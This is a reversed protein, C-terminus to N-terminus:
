RLFLIGLIVGALVVTWPPMKWIALMAFLFAALVFDYPNRIVSTWIPSYFAAFLLGVVAANVGTLANRIKPRRSLDAWFPLVGMILLFAPLFIAFIALIGGSWGKLVTGIYAAFTFLPGPVAQTAGYGALFSSNDMLGSRVFEQELFPLVVHGGGFVLAGSRYLSDFMAAWESGTWARVAPLVALLVFFLVLCLMGVKRSIPFRLATESEAPSSRGAHHFLLYGALGAAAIILPQAYLTQWLLSVALALFAITRTKMDYALNRMMGLVAHLVVAVAVMKLGAIWGSGGAGSTQLLRSFLILAAASPWTFGIFSLVGGLLGGRIVGIGIGAQSSAPGPLFQCLAILSAYREEDLWKRKQVYEHRFYGLHAIPGGFSTLGLITSVYLIELYTHIAHKEKAIRIEGEM